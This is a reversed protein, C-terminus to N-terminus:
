VAYSSQWRSSALVAFSLVLGGNSCGGEGSSRQVALERRCIGPLGDLEAAQVQRMPIAQKVVTQILERSRRTM